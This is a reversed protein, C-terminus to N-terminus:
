GVMFDVPLEHNLSMQEKIRQIEEKADDVIQRGNLTAGGPLQIGDFKSLNTGWQLKFLATTYEKLFM